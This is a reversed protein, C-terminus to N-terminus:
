SALEGFNFIPDTPDLDLQLGTVVGYPMDIDLPEGAAVVVGYLPTVTYDVDGSSGQIIILDTSLDEQPPYIDLVGMSVNDKVGVFDNIIAKGEDLDDRNYLAVVEDKYSIRRVTMCDNPLRYRTEGNLLAIYVEKRYIGTLKCINAQGQNVIQLLRLDTWRNVRTDGLRSRAINILYKATM